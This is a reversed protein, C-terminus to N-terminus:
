ETPTTLKDLLQPLTMGTHGQLVQFINYERDAGEIQSEEDSVLGIVPGMYGARRVALAAQQENLDVLIAAFRDPHEAIFTIIADAGWDSIEGSKAYPEPIYDGLRDCNQLAHTVGDVAYINGLVLVRKAENSM